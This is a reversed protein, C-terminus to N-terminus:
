SGAGQQESYVAFISRGAAELFDTCVDLWDAVTLSAGDQVLGAQVAIALVAPPIAGTADATAERDRLQSRMGDLAQRNAARAALGLFQAVGTHQDGTSAQRQQPPHVQRQRSGPGDGATRQAPVPRRSRTTTAAREQEDPDSAREDETLEGGTTSRIDRVVATAPDVKLVDFILWELLNDPNNTIAQPPDGPKIGAHVSRAGIVTPPNDRFMRVWMSADYPVDSQTQVSWVRAGEVPKGNKVETVEKGRATMIVVGPFTMLQTMLRRHRSNADNWLNQTPRLEGDPDRELAKRGANSRRYREDVWKKLGTWLDTMTDIILVAPPLGAARDQAAQDKVWLVREYIQAWTGDHVLMRYRTGPINIYDDASGEGLDLVWARGVRPSKTLLCAAWTKGSKEDGELLVLPYPTKGTPERDWEVPATM